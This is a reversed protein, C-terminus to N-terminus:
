LRGGPFTDELIVCEEGYSPMDRIEAEKPTDQYWPFNVPLRGAFSRGFAWSQSLRANCVRNRQLCTSDNKDGHRNYVYSVKKPEIDQTLADHIIYYM